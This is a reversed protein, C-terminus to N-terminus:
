RFWNPDTPESGGGSVAELDGDSLEGDPRRLDPLVILADVGKDKEIFKVNFSSPISVGFRELIERRPDVLLQKRFEPDVTARALVAQLAQEERKPMAM